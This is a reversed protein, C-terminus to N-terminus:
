CDCRPRTRIVFRRHANRANRANSLDARRDRRVLPRNGRAETREIGDEAQAAQRTGRGDSELAVSRAALGSERQPGDGLDLSGAPYDSIQVEGSTEIRDLRSGPADLEFPQDDERGVRELLCQRHRRHKELISRDVQEQQIQRRQYAIPRTEGRGTEALSKV